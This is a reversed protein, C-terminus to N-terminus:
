LGAARSVMGEMPAYNGGLGAHIAGIYAETDQKWTRYDLMGLGAQVAMVDALVRAIRGNGERFPHILILEVHVVAIARVAQEASMGGCPTLPGLHQREFDALLRPV